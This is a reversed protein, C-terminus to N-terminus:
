ENGRWAEIRERRRREESREKRVLAFRWVLGVMIIGIVAFLALWHSHGHGDNALHGPHALAPDLGAIMAAISGAIAAIFAAILRM